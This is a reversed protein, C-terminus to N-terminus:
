APPARRTPIRGTSCPRWWIWRAWATAAATGGDVVPVARVCFRRRGTRRRPGARRFSRFVAERLPRSFGALSGPRQADPPHLLFSARKESLADPGCDRGESGPRQHGHRGDKGHMPSLLLRLLLRARGCLRLLCLTRRGGRCDRGHARMKGGGSLAMQLNHEAVEAANPCSSGFWPASRDLADVAGYVAPDFEGLSFAGYCLWTELGADKAAQFADPNKGSLVVGDYGRQILLKASAAPHQEDLGFLYRKM